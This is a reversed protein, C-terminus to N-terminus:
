GHYRDLNELAHYVAQRDAAAGSQQWWVGPAKVAMANNVVHTKLVCQDRPIKHPFAFRTFHDAWDYGQRHITSAVNLLWPEPRRRYLWYVSLLLDAWRHQGWEFLPREELHDRLWGCFGAVAEIARPDGSAEHYQTLVKLVVMVPWVDYPQRDPAQVPGIWGDAGQSGLIAELWRQAR